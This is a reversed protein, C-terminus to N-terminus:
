INIVHYNISSVIRASSLFAADLIQNSELEFDIYTIMYPTNHGKSKVARQLNHCVITYSLVKSVFNYSFIRYTIYLIMIIMSPTFMNATSM